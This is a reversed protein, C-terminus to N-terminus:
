PRQGDRSVYTEHRSRPLGDSEFTRDSLTYAELRAALTTDNSREVKDENKVSHRETITITLIDGLASARLDAIANANGKARAFLNQAPVTATPLLAALLLLCPRM